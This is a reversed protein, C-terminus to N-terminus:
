LVESKLHNWPKNEVNIVTAPIEQSLSRAIIYSHSFGILSNVLRRILTASQEILSYQNQCPVLMGQQLYLTHGQKYAAIYVM